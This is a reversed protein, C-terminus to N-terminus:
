NDFSCRFPPGSLLLLLHWPGPAPFSKMSIFVSLCIPIGVIDSIHTTFVQEGCAGWMSSESEQARDTGQRTPPSSAGLSSLVQRRPKGAWVAM